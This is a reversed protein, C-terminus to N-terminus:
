RVRQKPLPKRRLRRLPARLPPQDKSPVPPDLRLLLAAEPAQGKKSKLSLRRMEPRGDAGRRILLIQGRKARQTLGGAETFERFHGWWSVGPDYNYYETRTFPLRFRTGVGWGQGFVRREGIAIAPSSRAFDM